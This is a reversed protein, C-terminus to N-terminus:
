RRRRRLLARYMAQQAPVQVEATIARDIRKDIAEDTLDHWNMLGAVFDRAAKATNLNREAARERLCALAFMLKARHDNARGRLGTAAVIADKRANGSLLDAKLIKSAVPKLWEIAEEDIVGASVKNWLTRADRRATM